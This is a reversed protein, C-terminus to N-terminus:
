AAHKLLSNQAEKYLEDIIHYDKQDEEWRNLTGIINYDENVYNLSVAMRGSDTPTKCLVLTQGNYKSDMCPLGYENVWFLKNQRTLETLATATDLINMKNM